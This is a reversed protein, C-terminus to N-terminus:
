PAAPPALTRTLWDAVQEPLDQVSYLLQAGHQRGSCVTLMDEPVPRGAARRREVLQKSSEFAFVDGVGAYLRLPVEGLEAIVDDARIERYRLGPSFLALAAVDDNFLAYRLALNAGLGAGVIGIRRPRGGATRNLWDYAANLDLLMDQFDSPRFAGADLRVPGQDTERRVSEGHGRLDVALAALGAQQLWRAFPIWVRRDEDTSHVLLVAPAAPDAAAYYTAVLAVGDRTQLRIDQAAATLAGGLGILLLVTKIM